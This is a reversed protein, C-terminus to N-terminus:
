SAAALQRFTSGHFVLPEIDATYHIDHVQLLVVAHDGAPTESIVSCDMSLTAGGILIAGGERHHLDLGAFRDGSKSALQRCIVSHSDALISVGIRDAARLVPWTSSSNQVAFLVLPPDQSVGVTFSSAVLGTQAGDVTAALAAVGSPFRAFAHRLNAPAAPLMDIM